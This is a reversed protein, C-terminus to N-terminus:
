AGHSGSADAREETEASEGEAQQDPVGTKDELEKKLIAVEQTLRRMQNYSRSAFITLDFLILLAFVFGMFFLLNTARYIGMWGAVKKLIGPFCDLVIIAAGAFLWTLAYRMELRRKRVIMIIWIVALVAIAGVWLQTRTNM